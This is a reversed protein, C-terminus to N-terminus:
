STYFVDFTHFIPTCTDYLHWEILQPSLSPQRSQSEARTARLLRRPRFWSTLIECRWWQTSWDWSFLYVKWVERSIKRNDIM